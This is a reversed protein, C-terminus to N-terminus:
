KLTFHKLDSCNCPPTLRDGDYRAMYMYLPGKNNIRIGVIPDFGLYTVDGSRIDMYSKSKRLVNNDNEDDRLVADDQYLNVDSNYRFINNSQAITVTKKRICTDYMSSQNLELNPILSRRRSTSTISNKNRHMQSIDQKENFDYDESSTSSLPMFNSLKQKSYKAKDGPVNLHTVKNKTCVPLTKHVSCDYIVNNKTASMRRSAFSNENSCLAYSSDLQSCIRKPSYISSSINSPSKLEKIKSQKREYNSNLESSLIQDIEEHGDAYDDNGDNDFYIPDNKMNDGNHDSSIGETSRVFDLAMNENAYAVSASSNFTSDDLEQISNHDTTSSRSSISIQRISLTDRLINHTDISAKYTLGCVTSVIDSSTCEFSEYSRKNKNEDVICIMFVEPYNPFVFFHKIERYIVEKRFPRIDIPRRRQFRIRDILFYATCRTKRHKQIYKELLHNARQETFKESRKLFTQKICSLDCEFFLVQRTKRDISRYEYIGGSKNLNDNSNPYSLSM